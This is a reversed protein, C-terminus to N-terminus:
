TSANAIDVVGNPTTIGTPDIAGNFLYLNQVNGVAGGLVGIPIPRGADKSDAYAAGILVHASGTQNVTLQADHGVTENTSVTTWSGFTGDDNVTRVSISVTYSKSSSQKGIAQMLANLTPTGSNAQINSFDITGSGSTPVASSVVSTGGSVAPALESMDIPPGYPDTSTPSTSTTTVQKVIIVQYFLGARITPGQFLKSVTQTGDTFQFTVQGGSIGVRYSMTLHPSGVPSGTGKYLLG